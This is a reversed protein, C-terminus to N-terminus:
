VQTHGAAAAADDSRKAVDWHGCTKLWFSAEKLAAVLEANAKELGRVYAVEHYYLERPVMTVQVDTM